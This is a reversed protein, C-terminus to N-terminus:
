VNKLKDRCNKLLEQYTRMSLHDNTLGLQKAHELSSDGHELAEEYQEKSM